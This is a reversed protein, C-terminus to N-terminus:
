TIKRLADVRKVREAQTHKDTHDNPAYDLHSFRETNESPGIKWAMQGTPAHVCVITDYGSKQKRESKLIHSPFNRSAWAVFALLEDRTRKTRERAREMRDTIALSRPEKAGEANRMAEALDRAEIAGGVSLEYIAQPM